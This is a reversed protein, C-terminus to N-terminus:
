RHIRRNEDLIGLSSKYLLKCFHASYINSIKKRIRKKKNFVKWSVKDLMKYDTEDLTKPLRESFIKWANKRFMKAGQSNKRVRCCVAM